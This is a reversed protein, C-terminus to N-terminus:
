YEIAYHFLLPSLTRLPPLRAAFARGAAAPPPLTYHLTFIITDAITAM